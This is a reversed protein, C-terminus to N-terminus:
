SFRENMLPGPPSLQQRLEKSDVDLNIGFIEEEVKTSKDKNNLLLPPNDNMVSPPPTIARVSTAPPSGPMSPHIYQHLWDLAAGIDTSRFYKTGEVMLDRVEDKSEFIGQAYHKGNIIAYWYKVRPVKPTPDLSDDSDSDAKQPLPLKTKSSPKPVPRPIKGKLGATRGQNLKGELAAAHRLKEELAALQRQLEFIQQEKPSPPAKPTPKVKAQAQDVMHSSLLEVQRVLEDMKANDSPAQKSPSAKGIRSSRTEAPPLVTPSSFQVSSPRGSKTPTRQKNPADAGTSIPLTPHMQNGTAQLGYDVLAEEDEAQEAEM